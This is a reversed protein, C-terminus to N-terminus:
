STCESAVGAVANGPDTAVGQLPVKLRWVEPREVVPGLRQERLRQGDRHHSGQVSMAWFPSVLAAYEEVGLLLACAEVARGGGIGPPVRNAM